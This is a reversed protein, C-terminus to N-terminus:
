REDIARGAAAEDMRIGGGAGLRAQGARQPPQALTLTGGRAGSGERRLSGVAALALMGLNQAVKVLGVRSGDATGFCGCEIDLGRVLAAVVALTFIAMLGTAVYAAGRAQIGLVLALAAVLEIWPLSLAFLNELPIPVIRFNHLQLAFGQLNGLKALAALAFLVGIAIQCVRIVLARRSV